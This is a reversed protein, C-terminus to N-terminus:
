KSLRIDSHFKNDFKFCILYLYQRKHKNGHPDIWTGSPLKACYGLQGANFVAIEMIERREALYCHWRWYYDM